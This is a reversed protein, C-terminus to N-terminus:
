NSFVGPINKPTVVDLIASFTVGRNHDTGGWHHLAVVKWDATFCPSGSSGKQTNDTYAVRNLAPAPDTVAGTSFKLPTGLPHQIIFLQDNKKFEYHTPKLWGRVPAQPQGAVAGKAPQGNLALSAITAKSIVNPAM